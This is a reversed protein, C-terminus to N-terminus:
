IVFWKKKIIKYRNIFLMILIQTLFLPFMIQIIGVNLYATLNTWGNDNLTFIQGYFGCTGMGSTVGRVPFALPFAAVALLASLGSVLTPILLARPYRSFNKMQLMSTGLGVSIATSFKGTAVYTLMGFALMQGATGAMAATAVDGKLYIAFAIAASSTPLSLALGMLSGIIPALLIGAWHVKNASNYIVWETLVLITSTLYAIWLLGFMGFLIGFIPIIIIDLMMKWEFIKIVYVFIMSALFAGFIDGPLGMKLGNIFNIGVRSVTWDISEQELIFKPVVQSHGILLSVIALAIIRLPEFQNKIGISAGIAFPCIYYLIYKINTIFIAFNNEQNIALLGIITGAVLTAIFGWTMGIMGNTWLRKHDLLKIHTIKM